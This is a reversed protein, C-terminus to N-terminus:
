EKEYNVKLVNDLFWNFPRNQAVHRLKWLPSHVDMDRGKEVFEIIIDRCMETLHDFIQKGHEASSVAPYGSYTHQRFHGVSAKIGGIRQKMASIKGMFTQQNDGMLFSRGEEDEPVKTAAPLDQWGPRVLQPWLHLALSTEVFGAHTDKEMQSSKLPSAGRKTVADYFVDGEVMRKTAVSFISAAATDPHLRNLKMAAHELACIHRPSGHFASFCLRAFGRHAFPRLMSFAVDRVVSVTMNVSGTHPIADISVPVPPTMVFSWDLLQEAAMELARGALADAEFLDQGIPLHPGHVELPSMACMILTRRPDLAQMDTLTMRDLRRIPSADPAPASHPTM